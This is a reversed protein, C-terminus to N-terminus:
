DILEKSLIIVLVSIFSLVSRFINTDQDNCLKRYLIYM